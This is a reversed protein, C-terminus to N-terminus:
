FMIILYIAYYEPCELDVRLIYGRSSDKRVKNVDFRGFNESCEFRGAPLYQSM